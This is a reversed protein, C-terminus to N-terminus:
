EASIDPAYEVGNGGGFYSIYMDGHLECYTDIGEATTWNINKYDGIGSGVYFCKVGGAALATIQEATLQSYYKGEALDEGAIHVLLLEASGIADNIVDRIDAEAAPCLIVPFKHEADETISMKLALASGINPDVGEPRYMDAAFEETNGGSLSTVIVISLSDGTTNNAAPDKEGSIAPEQPESPSTTVRWVGFGALVALCVCCLSSLTVAIRTMKRKKEAAYRDRRELLSRVMEDSNKM